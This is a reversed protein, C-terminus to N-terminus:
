SLTVQETVFVQGRVYTQEFAANGAQRAQLDWYCRSPLSASKEPSLSLRIKGEVGGSLIAVDFSAVVVGGHPNQRIQATWILNSVNFPFDFEASWSDGEYIAIDYIGVYSPAPARGKLDNQIYVREPKRADDVEQSMFVPVLRNTKRSIRRLIGIEIRWLGINLSSCLEKYQQMRREIMDTLQRYRESRPIVVGDPAYINIDFASDTALAWLAECTALIALPYEEVPPIQYLGMQTGLNDTREHTHQTVATDIFRKIDENTFYRFYIGTIVINANNAPPVVFNVVGIDPEVEYDGPQLKVVGNVKVLLSVPDIPKVDVYFARKEGDGGDNFRFTKPQDGLELRVRSTIDEIIAM